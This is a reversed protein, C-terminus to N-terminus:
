HHWPFDHLFSPRTRGIRLLSASRNATKGNPKSDKNSEFACCTSIYTSINERSNLTMWYPFYVFGVWAKVMVTRGKLWKWNGFKQFGDHGTNKLERRSEAWITPIHASDSLSFAQTIKPIIIAQVQTARFGWSYGDLIPLHIIDWNPSTNWM